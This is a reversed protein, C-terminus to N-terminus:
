KLKVTLIRTENKTEVNIDFTRGYQGVIIWFTEEKNGSKDLFSKIESLHEFPNLHQIKVIYKM